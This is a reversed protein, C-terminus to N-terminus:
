QVNEMARDAVKWAADRDDPNLRGELV